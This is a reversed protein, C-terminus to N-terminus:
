TKKQINSGLFLFLIWSERFFICPFSFGKLLSQYFNFGSVTIICAVWGFAIILENPLYLQLFSLVFRCPFTVWYGISCLILYSCILSITVLSFDGLLVDATESMLMDPSTHAPLISVELFSLDLAYLEPFWFFFFFFHPASWLIWPLCHKLNPSSESMSM